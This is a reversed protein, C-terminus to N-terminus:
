DPECVQEPTLQEKNIYVVLTGFGDIEVPITDPLEAQVKKWVQHRDAGPIYACAGIPGNTSNGIELKFENMGARM